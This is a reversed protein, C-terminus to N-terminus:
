TINYSALAFSVISEDCLRDMAEAQVVPIRVSVMVTDTKSM